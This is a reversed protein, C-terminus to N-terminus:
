LFERNFFSNNKKKSIIYSKMAKEYYQLHNFEKKINDFSSM